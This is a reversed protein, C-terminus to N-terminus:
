RVEIRTLSETCGTCEQFSLWIVARRRARALEQAMAAAATPPLAMLAAVYSAYKLLIRRSYGRQRLREGLNQAEAM